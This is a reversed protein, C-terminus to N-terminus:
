WFYQYALVAFTLHCVSDAIVMASPVLLSAVAATAVILYASNMIITRGLLRAPTSKFAYNIKRYFILVIILWVVLAISICAIM